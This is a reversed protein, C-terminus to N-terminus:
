PDSIWSLMSIKLKWDLSCQYRCIQERRWYSSILGIGTMREYESGTHTRNVRILKIKKTTTLTNSSADFIVKYNNEFM